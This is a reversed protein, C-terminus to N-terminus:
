VDKWSRGVSATATFTLGPLSAHAQTMCAEMLRAVQWPISGEPVVMKGKGRAAKVPDSDPVWTAGDAPCEVVLADHCQNIVGTGPGWKHLPIQDHLQILACNVMAAASSQVRFNVIENPNEGDLFDRRRGGVPERLYGDRRFDEITNRWGTEFEPAGRLWNDRMHRVKKLPIRAYPLDTTGDDFPQGTKPDVAPLEAKQILKHVTEVSGMYQSCFQVNKSLRRLDLANGTGIFKGKADYAQGVLIGPQAFRAPDIGAEKCFENGFVAFATMSHPDKGEAFARLYLQVRWLAAAIRLELQDMDAGVLVHGPAATVLSRLEKPCNQANFPKFSSLRGTVPISISYGPYTRGTAPNVIGRKIDGYMKRTEKDVWDDDEDWGLDASVDSHRMKVVYTGLIKLTKRYRRLLKIIERQADPVNPATLLTRLIFDGTSLDGSGTEMEEEKIGLGALHKDLGWSEFLLDRMQYISMPNFTALQTRGRIEKLLEYRRALLEKEKALRAEQDVYMGAEHMAACVRQMAQDNHWVALQDRLRVQSALVTPLAATISTDWACYEHLQRDTEGGLAIKNNERDTKWSPPGVYLSAVHALNKPLESEVSKYLLITDVCNEVAIGMQRKLVACDYLIGNHAAKVRDHDQFFDTLIAAIEHADEGYYFDLFLGDQWL